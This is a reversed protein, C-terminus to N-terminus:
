RNVIGYILIAAAVSANLSNVHGFQPIAVIQDSNDRVLRSIGNGENGIILLVKDGFDIDKYNDGGMDASYVFYGNKQFDKIVNVLNNVMAINVNELAGVSTKMVTANVTVSRDKPIIISKIGAAECTRIIAGFNHPDELHDLMLVVKDNLMNHYDVYEYENIDIIIGQHKGDVMSDMKRHDITSYSIKNDQIFKIIEKDNFSNSIYVKRISSINNKVENFVNKGYVKM